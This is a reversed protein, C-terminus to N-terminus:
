EPGSPEQTGLLFLWGARGRNYLPIAEARQAPPTAPYPNALPPSSPQKGPKGLEGVWCRAAPRSLSGAGSAQTRRAAGSLTQTARSPRLHPTPLRQSLWSKKGQGNRGSGGRDHSLDPSPRPLPLLPCRPACGSGPRGGGVACLLRGRFPQGTGDAARPAEPRLKRKRM